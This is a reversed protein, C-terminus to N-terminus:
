TAPAAEEDLQSTCQPCRTAKEDIHSRCFPCPKTSPAPPTDPRRLRNIWRVIFFLALATLLFAIVSNLFSGWALM